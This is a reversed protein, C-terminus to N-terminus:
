YEGGFERQAYGQGPNSATYPPQGYATSSIRDDVSSKYSGQNYDLSTPNQVGQPEWSTAEKVLIIFFSFTITKGPLM